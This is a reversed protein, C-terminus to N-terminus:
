KIVEISFAVTNFEPVTNSYISVNKLLKGEKNKSNFEVTIEGKGGAPIAEKPWSPVTCGCSANAYSIQLPGTGTNVFEYTHKIKEGEKITGLDVKNKGKFDMIPVLKVKSGNKSIKTSDVKNGNKQDNKCSFFVSLFIFFVLSFRPLM